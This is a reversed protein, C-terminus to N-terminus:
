HLSAIPNYGTRLYMAKLCPLANLLVAHVNMVTSCRELGKRRSRIRFGHRLVKMLTQGLESLTPRKKASSLRCYILAMFLKTSEDFCEKFLIYRRKDFFKPLVTDDLIKKAVPSAIM